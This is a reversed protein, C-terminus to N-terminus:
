LPVEDRDLPHLAADDPPADQGQLAVDNSRLNQLVKNPGRSDASVDGMVDNMRNERPPPPGHEVKPRGEEVPSMTPRNPMVPGSHMTPPLPKTKRSGENGLLM